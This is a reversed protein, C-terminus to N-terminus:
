YNFTKLFSYYINFLVSYSHKVPPFEAEVSTISCNLTDILFQKSKTLFNVVIKIQYSWFALNNELSFYKKTKM